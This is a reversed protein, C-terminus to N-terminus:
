DSASEGTLACALSALKETMEDSAALRDRICQRIAERAARENQLNYERWGFWGVALLVAVCTTAM